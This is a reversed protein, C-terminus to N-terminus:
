SRAPPAPAPIPAAVVPIPEDISVVSPSVVSPIANVKEPEDSESPEEGGLEALSLPFEVSCRDTHLQGELSLYFVATASGSPSPKILLVSRFDQAFYKKSLDHDEKELSFAPGASSRYYGVISQNKRANENARRIANRFCQAPCDLFSNRGDRRHECLVPTFDM